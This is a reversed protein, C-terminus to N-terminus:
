AAAGVDIQGTVAAAILAARREKLLTITGETANKLADLRRLESKMHAVIARQEDLPPAPYRVVRLTEAPLHQITAASAQSAFQGSEVITRM